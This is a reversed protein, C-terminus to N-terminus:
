HPHSELQDPLRLERGLMLMNATEGTASHSTDRYARMLQPLLLNWEDQGRGSLLARLSEWLGRNNQEVIGNAQPHYPTKHPKGINWLQCMEAMPQGEFQAGQNTYIQEPLGLYCFVLEDLTNAVVPVTTDLLALAGQWRTFHDTLVLVWKNGKPTVPFPGVLDM